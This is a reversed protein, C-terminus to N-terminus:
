AWINYIGSEALVLLVTIVLFAVGWLCIFYNSVITGIVGFESPKPEKDYHLSERMHSIVWMANPKFSSFIVYVMLLITLAMIKIMDMTETDKVLGQHVIYTYWIGCAVMGVIVVIAIVGSIIHAPTVRIGPDYEKDGAMHHNRPDTMIAKATEREEQIDDSQEMASDNEMPDSLRTGCEECRKHKESYVTGCDPCIRVMIKSKKSM